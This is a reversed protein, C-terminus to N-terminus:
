GVPISSLGCVPFQGNLVSRMEGHTTDYPVSKNRSSALALADGQGAWEAPERGSSPRPLTSASLEDSTQSRTRKIDTPTNGRSRSPQPVQQLPHQHSTSHLASTHHQHPSHQQSSTQLRTNTSHQPTSPHSHYGMPANPALHDTSDPSREGVTALSNQSSYTNASPLPQHAFHNSSLPLNGNKQMAAAHALILKASPTLKTSPPHQPAASPVAPPHAGAPTHAHAPTSATQAM